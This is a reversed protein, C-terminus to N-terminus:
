TWLYCFICSFNKNSKKIFSMWAVPFAKLGKFILNIFQKRNKHDIKARRSGSGSRFHYDPNPYLDPSGMSDPDVVSTQATNPDPDPGVFFSFLILFNWTTILQINERSSKPSKRPTSTRLLPRLLFINCNKTWFSRTFSKKTPCWLSPDRNQKNIQSPVNVYNKLSSFDYLLWFVILFFLNKKSVTYM